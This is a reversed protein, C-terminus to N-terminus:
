SGLGRRPTQWENWERIMAKLEADRERARVWEEDSPWLPVRPPEDGRELGEDSFDIDGEM